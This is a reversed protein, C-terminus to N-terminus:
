IREGQNDGFPKTPGYMPYPAYFVQKGSYLRGHGDHYWVRLVDKKPPGKTVACKM